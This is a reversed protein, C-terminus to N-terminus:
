LKDKANRRAELRVEVFEEQIQPPETNSELFLALKHRVLPSPPTVAKLPLITRHHATLNRASPATEGIQWSYVGTRELMGLSTRSLPM